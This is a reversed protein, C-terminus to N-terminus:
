SDEASKRPIGYISNFAVAVGLTVGLGIGVAFEMFPISLVLM